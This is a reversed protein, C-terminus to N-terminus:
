PVPSHVQHCDLIMGCPTVLKCLAGSIFQTEGRRPNTGERGWM